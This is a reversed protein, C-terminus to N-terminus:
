STESLCIIDLTIDRHGFNGGNIKCGYLRLESSIQVIHSVWSVLQKVAAEVLYCPPNSALYSINLVLTVRTNLDNQESSFYNSKFPPYRPIYISIMTGHMVSLVVILPAITDVRGSENLETESVYTQSFTMCLYCDPSLVWRGDPGPWFAGSTWEPINNVTINVRFNVLTTDNALFGARLGELIKQDKMLAEEFKLYLDYYNPGFVFPSYPSATPSIAAGVLLLLWYCSLEMAGKLINLELPLAQTVLWGVFGAGDGGERANHGTM